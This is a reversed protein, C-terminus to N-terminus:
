ATEEEKKYITYYSSITIQSSYNDANFYQYLASENENSYYNLELGLAEALPLAKEEAQDLSGNGHFSINIKAGTELAKKLVELQNKMKNEERLKPKRVM